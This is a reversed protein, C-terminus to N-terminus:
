DVFVHDFTTWPWACYSVGIIGASQSASATSWRLDPTRSWGSWCPSVRDRSFIYFNALCPPLHRYNWSSPLSLCSFWKFEPILPQLSSLDCWQIGVQIVSCSEKEFIFLYIFLYQYVNVPCVSYFLLGYHCVCMSLYFIHHCIPFKHLRLTGCWM